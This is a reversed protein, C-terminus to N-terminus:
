LRGKLKMRPIVFLVVILAIGGIAVGAALAIMMPSPGAPPTETTTTSTTGTTTTSTTTTTTDTPPLVSVLVSDSAQNDGEDTVIITFNYEGPALSDVDVVIGSGNWTGEYLATGNRLVLYTVTGADSVNWSISHGISGLEYQIDEPSSITPSVTDVVDVTVTDSAENGTSDYVSLTISYSGVPLGDINYGINSGNWSESMILIDDRHIKYTQPDLESVDWIISNGTSGVEYEMDAPSDIAPATTDIVSVIVTDSVSNGSSDHIILMVNHSGLSLGDISYQISSGNWSTEEVINGDVYVKRSFPNLDSANWHIFNGTSGLEYQIDASSDITPATTDVVTVTVSDTVVNESTDIVEVTFNYTGLSLADVNYEIATGDWSNERVLSGNRYIRYSDPNLDVPNWILANGTSGFEYLIDEPRTTQPSTTDLVAVFVTDVSIKDLTDNVSITYNYVGIDLGDVDVTLNAGEAAGSDIVSGNRYVTYSDLHLDSATWIISNGVTGLEYSFDNPHNLTPPYLDLVCPHNDVNLAFGDVLYSGSGDYDSWCNGITGNDWATSQSNDFGNYFHNYGISNRYFLNNESADDLEIGVGNQTATNDLGICDDSNEFDFGTLENYTANNGTLNLNSSETFSFGYYLNSDASNEVLSHTLVSSFRFGLLNAVASNNTLIWGDSNELSFGNFSNGTATNTQLYSNDTEVISIGDNANQTARNGTLNLNTSSDIWFGYENNDNALNNTLNCYSAYKVFFGYNTNNTATNQNLTVDTMMDWQTGLLHFGNESNLNATNNQFVAFDSHSSYFGHHANGLATNNELHIHNSNHVSFGHNLNGTATNNELICDESQMVRYGKISNNTSYTRRITCNDSFLLVVGETANEYLGNEVEVFSSNVIVLQGYKSGNIETNNLGNFYGLPKGNVTNGDESSIWESLSDDSLYIGSQQFTNDHLSCQHTDRSIYMGYVGDSITNNSLNASFVRDLYFGADSNNHAENMTFNSTEVYYLNLGNDNWNATNGTINCDVATIMFGDQSNNIADNRSIVANTGSIYFGRRNETATNNSATFDESSLHFGFENLRATNNIVYSAPSSHQVIGYKSALVTNNRITANTCFAFQIGRSANNYTGNALTINNCNVLITQGHTSADIKTNNLNKLYALQKGNVTNGSVDHTVWYEIQDHVAFVLGNNQFTNNAITSSSTQELNVASESNNAFTNNILACQNSGWLYIGNKGGESITNNKFTCNHSVSLQVNSQHKEIKCDQITGNPASFLDIGPNSTPSPASLFCNKIIYHASTSQIRICFDNTTINLGEILYPNAKTGNGPWEQTEFDSDSSISIPDHPTYAAKFSRDDLTHHSSSTNTGAAQANTLMLLAFLFFLIKYKMHHAKLNKATYTTRM